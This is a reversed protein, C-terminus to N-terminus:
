GKIKKLVTFNKVKKKERLVLPHM